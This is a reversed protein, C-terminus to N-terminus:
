DSFVPGAPFHALFATVTLLERLSPFTIEKEALAHDFAILSDIGGRGFVGGAWLMRQAQDRAWASESRWALIHLLAQLLSAVHTRQEKVLRRYVPLAISRIVDFSEWAADDKLLKGAEECLRNHTLTERKEVAKGAAIVVGGLLYLSEPLLPLVIRRDMALQQGAYLCTVLIKQVNYQESLSEIIGLAPTLHNVLDIARISRLIINSQESTQIRQIDLLVTEEM